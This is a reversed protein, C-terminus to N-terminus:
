PCYVIAYERSPFDEQLQDLCNNMAKSDTDLAVLSDRANDKSLDLLIFYGKYKLTHRAAYEQLKIYKNKVKTEGFLRPLDMELVSLSVNSVEEHIETLLKGTVPNAHLAGTVYPRIRTKEPPWHYCPHLNRVSDNVDQYSVSLTGNNALYGRIYWSVVDPPLGSQM